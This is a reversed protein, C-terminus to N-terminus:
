REPLLDEASLFNLIERAVLEHGAPIWHTDNMYLCRSDSRLIPLLDLAVINEARFQANIWSQPMDFDYRDTEGPEIVLNQLMPNLQNEDPMIVVAFGAGMSESAQRMRYIQQLNREAFERQGAAPQALHTSIRNKQIQVFIDQFDGCNDRSFDLMGPKNALLARVIHSNEYAVIRLKIAWNRAAGRSVRRGLVATRTQDPAFRNVYIDNGVFLGALVLDPEYDAGYHELFSAYQYPSWGGTGANIVELQQGSSSQLLRELVQPYAEAQEINAGVTFSDGIVLIRFVGDPKPVAVEDDRLGRSNANAEIGTPYYGASGPKHRFGTYPDPEFYMNKELSYPIPYFVALCFEVLLIGLLISLLPLVIYFSKRTESM